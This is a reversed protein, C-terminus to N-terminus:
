SKSLNKVSKECDNAPIKKSNKKFIETGKKGFDFKVRFSYHWIMQMRQMIQAINLLCQKTKKFSRANSANWLLPSAVDGQPCGKILNRTQNGLTVKRDILISKIM